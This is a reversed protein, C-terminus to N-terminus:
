TSLDIHETPTKDSPINNIVYCDRITPNNDNTNIEVIDNTNSDTCNSEIDDTQNDRHFSHDKLDVGPMAIIFIQNNHHDLLLINALYKRQELHLLFYLFLFDLKLFHLGLHM